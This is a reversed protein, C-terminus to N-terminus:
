SKTQELAEVQMYIQLFINQPLRVISCSIKDKEQTLKIFVGTAYKISVAM